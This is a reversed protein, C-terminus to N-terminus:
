PTHPISLIFFSHCDADLLDAPSLVSIKIDATAPFYDEWDDNTTANMDCDDQAVDISFENGQDDVSLSGTYQSNPEDLLDSGSGCGYIWICGLVFLIISLSKAAKRM